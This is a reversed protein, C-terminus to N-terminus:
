KWVCIKVIVKEISGDPNQIAMPAEYCGVNEAEGRREEEEGYKVSVIFSTSNSIIKGSDKDMLEVLIDYTGLQNPANFECGYLGSGDTTDTCQVNGSIKVEVDSLTISSGGLYKAQGSVSIGEAYYVDTSNLEISITGNELLLFTSSNEAYGGDTDMVSCVATYNGLLNAQTTQYNRYFTSGIRSTITVNSWANNPSFISINVTLSDLDDEEDSVDCSIEIGQEREFEAPATTNNFAPTSVVPLANITLAISDMDNPSDAFYYMSPNSSINAQVTRLGATEGSTNWSYACHGTSNTSSTTLLSVNDYFNCQYNEITSGNIADKVLAKLKITDGRNVTQGSSTVLTINAKSYVDVSVSDNHSSSTNEDGAFTANITHPGISSTTPFLYDTGSLGNSDTSNSGMDEGATEDTFSLTKGQAGEDGPYNLKTNILIGEGRVPTSTNVTVPKIYSSKKNIVYSFTDTKNWNTISATDNAYWRYSYGSPNAVLDIFTKNYEDGYKSLHGANYSYNVSDFEFIVDDVAINDTWTINFQYSAGASYTVPSEPSTKNDSYSPPTIDRVIIDLTDNYRDSAYLSRNGSFTVNLFYDGVSYGVTSWDIEAGGTANTLNDGLYTQNIYFTINQEAMATGNSYELRAYLKSGDGPVPNTENASTIINPIDWVEVSKTLSDSDYWDKTTTANLTRIGLSENEGVTYQTDEGTAIEVDDLYWTVDPSPDDGNESAVTSNLWYTYGRYLRAGALVIISGSGSASDYGDAKADITYDIDTTNTPEALYEWRSNGADWAMAYMGDIDGGVVTVNVSVGAYSSDINVSGYNDYYNCYITTTNSTANGFNVPDYTEDINIVSTGRPSVTFTSSNKEGFISGGGRTTTINIYVWWTKESEVDPMTIDCQAQGSSTTDTCSSVNMDSENRLEIIVSIGDDVDSSDTVFKLNARPSIIDDTYYQANLNSWTVTIDEGCYVNNEARSANKGGSDTANVRVNYCQIESPTGVSRSYNATQSDIATSYSMENWSEGADETDQVLSLDNYTPLDNDPDSINAMLTITDSSNVDVYSQSAYINNAGIDELEPPCNVIVGETSNTDPYYNTKNAMSTYALDTCGTPTCSFEYTGDTDGDTMDSTGTCTGSGTTFTINVSAATVNESNETDTYACYVTIQTDNDIPDSSEYCSLFTPLADVDFTPTSNTDNIVASSRSTNLTANIYWNTDLGSQLPITLSCSAQGSSTTDSCSDQQTGASNYLYLYVTEDEPVNSNDSSYKLTVTPTIEDASYYKGDLASFTITLDEGTFINTQWSSVNENNATDNAYIEVDYSGADTSSSNYVYWCDASSATGSCQMSANTIIASDSPNRISIDVSSTDLNNSADTVTVSINTSGFDVDLYSLSATAESFKPSEGDLIKVYADDTDNPYIQSNESTFNVDITWITDISGTASITWNLQCSQDQLLSGCSLPNDPGNYVVHISGDYGGIYVYDNDAHVSYVSTSAPTLTAVNDWTSNKAVVYAKSDVSGIYVYDNDAHVSYVSTSAPTLTAVNDWTSNKAFVYAKSDVSGVYVYDNDVYIYYVNHGGPLFSTVNDWTSNKAIVHVNYLEGIYV